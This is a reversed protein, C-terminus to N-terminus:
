SRSWPSGSAPAETGRSCGSGSCRGTRPSRATLGGVPHQDVQGGGVHAARRLLEPRDEEAAPDRHDEVDEVRLEGQLRDLLVPRGDDALDRGQEVHFPAEGIVRFVVKGREAERDVAALGHGPLEQHLHLRHRRPDPRAQPERFRRTEAGIRIHVGIHVLEGLPDAVVGREAGDRDAIEHLRVSRGPRFLGFPLHPLDAEGSGLDEQAVQAVRLVGGLGDRLLPDAIRAIDAIVVFLPEMEGAPRLEDDLRLPILDKGSSTSRWM